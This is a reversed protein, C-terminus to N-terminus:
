AERSRQYRSPFLEEGPLNSSIINITLRGKLIHDITSLTRALMPPHIEGCRAAALIKINEIM